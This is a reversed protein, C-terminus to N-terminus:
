KPCTTPTCTTAPGFLFTVTFMADNTGTTSGSGGEPVLVVKVTSKPVPLDHGIVDERSTDDGSVRCAEQAVKGFDSLAIVMVWHELNNPPENNRQRGHPDVDRLRANLNQAGSSLFALVNQAKMGLDVNQYNWLTRVLLGAGFLLVVCFAM